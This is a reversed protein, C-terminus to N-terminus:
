GPYDGRTGVLVPGTEGPCVKTIEPTATTTWGQGWCFARGAKDMACTTESESSPALTVFGNGGGVPVPSRACPWLPQVPNPTTCRDNVGVDHGMEGGDARGWCWLIGTTSLGCAGQGETTLARFHLNSAVAVPVDSSDSSNNGLQGFQNSGWCYAAGSTTLACTHTWGASISTFRLNGAVPVPTPSSSRTGTGLKGDSSSGWCVAAGGRLVGCTHYSAASLSVFQLSRSVQVPVTDRRGESHGWCYATSDRAIACARGSAATVATFRHRNAVYGGLEISSGRKVRGIGLQGDDNQGWCYALGSTDLGCAFRFGVSISTLEPLDELPKSAGRGVFAGQSLEGGWCVTMRDLTLGCTDYGGTSIAAFRRAVVTIRRQAVLTASRGAVTATGISVAQVQGWRDVSAISTDSSYWRTFQGSDAGRGPTSDTLQVHMVDGVWISDEGLSTVVRGVRVNPAPALAVTMPDPGVPPCPIRWAVVEPTRSSDGYPSHLILYGRLTDGHIGFRGEVGGVGNTWGVLVSDQGVGDWWAMRFRRVDGPIPGALRRGCDFWHTGVASDLRFPGPLEVDRAAEGPPWDPWRIEYCGVLADGSASARPRPIDIPTGRQAGSAGMNLLLLLSLGVTRRVQGVTTGGSRLRM